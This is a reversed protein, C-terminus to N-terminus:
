NLQPTPPTRPFRDAKSIKIWQVKTDILLSAHERPFVSMTHLYLCYDSSRGHPFKLFKLMTQMKQSNGSHQKTCSAVV